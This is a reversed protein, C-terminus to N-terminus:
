ERRLLSKLKNTNVDPAMKPLNPPLPLTAQQLKMERRLNISVFSLDEYCKDILQKAKDSNDGGDDIDSDGYEKGDGGSSTQDKGEKQIADLLRGYNELFGVLRREVKEISEIRERVDM